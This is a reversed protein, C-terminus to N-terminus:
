LFSSKNRTRTATAMRDARDLLTQMFWNLTLYSIKRMVSTEASDDDLIEYTNPSPPTCIQHPNSTAHYKFFNTGHFTQRLLRSLQSDGKSYFSIIDELSRFNSVDERSM